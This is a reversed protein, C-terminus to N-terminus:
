VLTCVSIQGPHSSRHRVILTSAEPQRMEKDEETTHCLHLLLYVSGFSISERHLTASLRARM